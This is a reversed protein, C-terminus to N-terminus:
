SAIESIKITNKRLFKDLVRKNLFFSRFGGNKPLIEISIYTNLKQNPEMSDEEQRRENEGSDLSAKVLQVDQILKMQNESTDQTEIRHRYGKDQKKFVRM